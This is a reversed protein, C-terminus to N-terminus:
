PALTINWDLPSSHSGHELQPSPISPIPHLHSLWTWTSLFHNLPLLWAWTTLLTSLQSGHELQPSITSLCFDHELQPSLTSLRSGREPQPSPTSPRSGHELQPLPILICIWGSTFHLQCTFLKIWAPPPPPSPSHWIWVSPTSPQTMNMWFQLWPHIWDNWSLLWAWNSPHYPTLSMNFFMTMPRHVYDM